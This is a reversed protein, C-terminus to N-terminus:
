SLKMGIIIWLALDVASGFGIVGETYGPLGSAQRTRNGFYTGVACCVPWLLVWLMWILTKMETPEM